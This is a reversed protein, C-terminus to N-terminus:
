GSTFMEPCGGTSLGPKCWNMDHAAIIAKLNLKGQKHLVRIHNKKVEERLKPNEDMEKRITKVADRVKKRLKPDM